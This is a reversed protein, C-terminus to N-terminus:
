ELYHALNPTAKGEKHSMRLSQHCGLERFMQRMQLVTVVKWELTGKHIRESVVICCHNKQTMMMMKVSRTARPEEHTSSRIKHYPHWDVPEHEIETALKSDSAVLKNERCDVLLLFPALAM